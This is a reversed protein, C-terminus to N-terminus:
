HALPHRHPAAALKPLVGALAAGHKATAQGAAASGEIRNAGYRRNVNTMKTQLMGWWCNNGIRVSMDVVNGDELNEGM